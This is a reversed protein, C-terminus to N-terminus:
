AFVWKVFSYFVLLVLPIWTVKVFFLSERLKWEVKDKESGRPVCCGFRVLMMLLPYLALADVFPALAREWPEWLSYSLDPWPRLGESIRAEHFLDLCYNVLFLWVPFFLASSVFYERDTLLKGAMIKKIIPVLAAACVAAIIKEM